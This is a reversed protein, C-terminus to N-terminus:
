DKIHISTFTELASGLSKMLKDTADFSTMIGKGILLLLLPYLM